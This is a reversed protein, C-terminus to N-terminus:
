SCTAAPSSQGGCISGANWTSQPSFGMWTLIASASLAAVAPQLPRRPRILFASTGSSNTLDQCATKLTWWANSQVMRGSSLSNKKSGASHASLNRLCHCGEPWCMMARADLRMYAKAPPPPFAVQGGFNSHGAAGCWRIYASKPWPMPEDEYMARLAIEKQLADLRAICHKCSLQLCM